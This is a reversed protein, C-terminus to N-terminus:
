GLLAGTLLAGQGLNRGLSDFSMGEYFGGAPTPALPMMGGMGARGGTLNGAAWGGGMMPIGTMPHAAVMAVAMAARAMNGLTNARQDKIAIQRKNEFDALRQALQTDQQKMRIMKEQALGYRQNANDRRSAVDQARAEQAKQQYQQGAQSFQNQIETRNTDALARSFAARSQNGGSYQGPMRSSARIQSPNFPNLVDIASGFNSQQGYVGHENARARIQPRSQNALTFTDM